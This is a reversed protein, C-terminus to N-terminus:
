QKSYPIYLTQHLEICQLWLLSQKNVDDVAEFRDVICRPCSQSTLDLYGWLRVFRGLVLQNSLQQQIRLQQDSTSAATTLLCEITGGSNDDIVFSFKLKDDDFRVNKSVIDGFLEILYINIHEYMIFTYRRDFMYSRVVKMKSIHRIFVRYYCRSIVLSYYKDKYMYDNESDDNEVLENGNNRSKSNYSSSSNNSDSDLDIIDVDVDLDLDEIDVDVIDNDNKIKRQSKSKNISNNNNNNDNVNM